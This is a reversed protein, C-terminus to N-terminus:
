DGGGSIEAITVKGTVPAVSIRYTHEDANLTIAGAANGTPSGLPDFELTTSDLGQSNVFQASVMDVNAFRTDEDFDIIYNGEAQAGGQWTMSLTQGSGDTMRYSNNAPDFVIRRVEQHAIADNQAFLVDAIVMRSAAQVGMSGIELMHPVVVAAAISIIVVVMLIEVLTFARSTPRGQTHSM